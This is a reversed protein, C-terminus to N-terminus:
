GRDRPSPSTYLLCTFIGDLIGEPIAAGSRDRITGITMLHGVNRIFMLSRRRVRFPTGDAQTHLTDGRMERVFTKGNKTITEELDGTMLGLCNRYVEIKDESDVAAVSDECDMITSLASELRIDGVSATDLKGISSDPDIIVEVLLGNHKFFLASPTAEAGDYAM